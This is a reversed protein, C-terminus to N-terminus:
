GGPRERHEEERSEEQEHDGEKENSECVTGFLLWSASKSLKEAIKAVTQVMPIKGDQWRQFNSPNVDIRRCFAADSEGPLKCSVLRQFFLTTTM